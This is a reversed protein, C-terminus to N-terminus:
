AAVGKQGNPTARLKQEDQMVWRLSPKVSIVGVLMSLLAVVWTMSLDPDLKVGFLILDSTTPSVRQYLMELVAVTSTFTLLLCGVALLFKHLNTPKFGQRLLGVLAGGMSTLGGPAYVVVLVFLLGLYMHWAPTFDSLLVTMLVGVVAGVMPGIFSSIGGIFTFLLVAGSRGASLNEASAIEFNIVSLAGSIGAFFGSVILTLYRALKPDFGIFSTREDNDRVANIIRGLPTTTFWYIAATCVFLWAAILGYVQLQSGFNLGFFKDGYVRNTSIGGEGGFFGPYMLSSAFIMEGIGLTIMAFTTGSKRTIVYGILTAFAMGTLGGVLPSLPLPLWMNGAAAHNIAHVAVFGGLGSFVAHGFSLMGGQGLLMNYSLGFIMATGMQSMLAVATASPFAIPAAILLAVFALWVTVFRPTTMQNTQTIQNKMSHM